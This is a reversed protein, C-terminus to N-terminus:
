QKANKNDVYHVIEGVSHRIPNVWDAATLVISLLRLDLGRLREGAAFNDSKIQEKFRSIFVPFARQHVERLDVILYPPPVADRATVPQEYTFLFPGESTDSQCLSRVDGTASACVRDLVTLAISEDYFSQMYKGAFDSGDAAASSKLKAFEAEKGAILPIYLINIHSKDPGFIQAPHTSAFIARLFAINRKTDAPAIAYSYLGYGATEGGLKTLESYGTNLIRLHGPTGNPIQHGTPVIIQVDTPKARRALPKVITPFCFGALEFLCDKANSSKTSALLSLNALALIALVEVMPRRM